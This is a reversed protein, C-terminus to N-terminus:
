NHESTFTGNLRNYSSMVGWTNAKKVAWEFPILYIERLAREDIESSMTTREIESENGVFHKITASIGQGQLGSIYGVALEASLFPDESYCEFNRGNTVSRHINVTPALLVHAGKSKVEDALAAGIETVLDVNWTAGIAIGVPFSASKVGGILSGGGRAGNPGDTVRLKGIGLRTVAPVSWFDEGSLISVKEELTMESLLQEIRNTM